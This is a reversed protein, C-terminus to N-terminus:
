TSRGAVAARQARARAVTAVERVTRGRRAVTRELANNPLKRM